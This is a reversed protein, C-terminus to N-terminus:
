RKEVAGNMLTTSADSSMLVLTQANDKAYKTFTATPRQMSGVVPLRFGPLYRSTGFAIARM